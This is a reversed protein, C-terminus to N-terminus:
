LVLDRATEGAEACLAAMAGRELADPANANGDLARKRVGQMIAALRFLAFAMYFGWRPAPDWGTLRAYDAVYAAEPPIGTGALDIDSLGQFARRPLHYPICNYSLDALPHGLTSLEWDLIAVVRPESPHVILNQLRYDGHAIATLDDAPIHRPLWDILQEMAEIRETESQRYQRTWRDIQRGFYNGPKGYDALGQAAVDVRHLRTLTEGMSRYISARDAAGLDPTLPDKIVRGDVHAM